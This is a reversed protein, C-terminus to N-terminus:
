WGSLFQIKVELKCVGGVWGFYWGGVGSGGWGGWEGGGLTDGVWGGWEGGWGSVRYFERSAALLPKEFNDEYVERSGIGLAMLMKCINKM